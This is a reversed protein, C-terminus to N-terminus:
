GSTDPPTPIQSVIDQTRLPDHIVHYSGIQLYQLQLDHFKYRNLIASHFAKEVCETPICWHVEICGKTLSMLISTGNSIDLIDVELQKQFVLLDSVTMERPDRKVKTMLKTYQKKKMEKGPFHPLIDVLKKSFIADKYNTLLELALLSQSSLVITELLRVDIWSWYDSSTLVDLVTDVDRTMTLKTKVDEPLQAGGPAKTQAICARRIILHDAKRLLITMNAQLATFASGVDSFKEFDEKSIIKKHPDTIDAYFIM